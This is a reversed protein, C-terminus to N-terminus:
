AVTPNLVEEVDWIPFRFLTHVWRNAWADRMSFFWADAKLTWSGQWVIVKVWSDPWWSYSCWRKSISYSWLWTQLYTVNDEEYLIIAVRKVEGNIRIFDWEAINKRENIAAQLEDKIIKNRNHVDIMWDNIEYVFEVSWMWAGSDIQAAFVKTVEADAPSVLLNWLFKM